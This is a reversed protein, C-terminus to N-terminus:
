KKEIIVYDYEELLQKAWQIKDELRQGPPQAKHWLELNELRNDNRIGNKHHVTENKKLERGLHKAMILRHIGISTSKGNVMIGLSHYGRKSITGTGRKRNLDKDLPLGKKKRYNIKSQERKKARNEDTNWHLKGRCSKCLRETYIKKFVEIEKKCHFCNMKM